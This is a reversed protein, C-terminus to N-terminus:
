QFSDLTSFFKADLFDENKPDFIVYKLTAKKKGGSYTTTIGPKNMKSNDLEDLINRNM